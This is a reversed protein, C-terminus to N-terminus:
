DAVRPVFRQYNVFLKDDMRKEVERRIAEPVTGQCNKM